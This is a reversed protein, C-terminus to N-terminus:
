CRRGQEGQRSCRWRPNGNNGLTLDEEEEKNGLTKVDKMMADVEGELGECIVSCFHPYFWLALAIAFGCVVIRGSNSLRLTHTHSLTFTLLTFTHPHSLTINNFHPVGVTPTHFHSFTFTQFHSLPSTHSHKFTFTYSHTLILNHSHSLSPFYLLQLTCLKFTQFHSLKTTHPHSLTFTYFTFTNLWIIVHNVPSYGYWSIWPAVDMDSPTKCLNHLSLNLSIWTLSTFSAILRCCEAKLSRWSWVRTREKDTIVAMWLCLRLDLSYSYWDLNVLESLTPSSFRSTSLSRTFLVSGKLRSLTASVSKAWLDEPEGKEPRVTSIIVLKRSDTWLSNLIRYGAQHMGRFALIDYTYVYLRPFNLINLSSNWFNAFTRGFICYKEEM